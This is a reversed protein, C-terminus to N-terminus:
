HTDFAYLKDNGTGIHYGSGWYVTGDVVAAGGVVSGGSAFRWRVEGTAADLAYMNDGTGAASGAYVVGNAASVYGMDVAGQPDPTRWLVRGDAASLAAWMGGTVTRTGGGAAPIPFAVHDSNAVAVYIRRGDTASGWQIGGLNGSPGVKTQWVVRGDDPDLAWYVGSKQGIGLLDRPRGRVTTTFLNPSSGFDLDTGDPPDPISQADAPLTRHSWRVRGTTLDLAVVSDFYDDAPPKECGTQDPLTCVGDPVTYNNGTAVYLLNRRRDVAPASGWVANGTYGPPAMYTQWLKRGTRLDLAVVSGRFTHPPQLIEESSSVGLYVVGRDIVPAGTIKSRPNADVQTRWRLAGTRRDVAVAGAGSPSTVTFGNGIVLTDGAVAPTTRSGDGPNGTYDSIRRSWVKAGDSARVAWLTGAADPVYVVGDAVAPTANVDGGTTFTWRPKLRAANRPGVTRETANFRTNQGNQGASTWDRVVPM